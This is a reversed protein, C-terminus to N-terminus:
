RLGSSGEVSKSRQVATLGMLFGIIVWGHARTLAEPVFEKVQTILENIADENLGLFEMYAKVAEFQDEAEEDGHLQAIVTFHQFAEAIHEDQIM